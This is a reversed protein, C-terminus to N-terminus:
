KTGKTIKELVEVMTSCGYKALIKDKSAEDPPTFQKEETAIPRRRNGLDEHPSEKEEPENELLTVSLPILSMPIPLNLLRNKFEIFFFDDQNKWYQAWAQNFKDRSYNGEGFKQQLEICGLRFVNLDM